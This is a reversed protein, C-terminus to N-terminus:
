ELKKSDTLYWGVFNDVLSDFFSERYRIIVKAVEKENIVYYYNERGLVDKGLIGENVLKSLHYSLSSAQMGMDKAIDTARCKGNEILYIVIRRRVRSRLASMIKRESRTMETNPFFRRYRGDKKAVIVEERLLVDIHYELMGTPMNLRKQLERFHLGPSKVIEEYIRKRTILEPM